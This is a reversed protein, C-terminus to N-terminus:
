RKLYFGTELKTFHSHFVRAEHVEESVEIPATLVNALHKLFNLNDTKKKLYKALKMLSM